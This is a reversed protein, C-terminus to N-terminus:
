FLKFLPINNLGLVQLEHGGRMDEAYVKIKMASEELQPSKVLKIINLSDIDGFSPLIEELKYCELLDLKELVPFSEDGVKWKALTVEELKLFKLNGFTDEDILQSVSILNSKLRVDCIYM